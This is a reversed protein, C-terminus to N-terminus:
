LLCLFLNLTLGIFSSFLSSNQIFSYFSGISKLLEFINFIDYKGLKCDYFFFVILRLLIKNIEKITQPRNILYFRFRNKKFFISVFLLNNLKKKKQISFQFSCILIKIYISIRVIKHSRYFFIAM